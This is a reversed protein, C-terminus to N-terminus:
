FKRKKSKREAARRQARSQKGSLPEVLMMSEILPPAVIKRSPINEFDSPLLGREIAQEPTVLVVDDGHQEKMAQLVLASNVEMGSGIILVHKSYKNSM